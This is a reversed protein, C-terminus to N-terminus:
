LPRKLEDMLSGDAFLIEEHEFTSDSRYYTKSIKNDDHVFFSYVAFENTHKFNIGYRTDPRSDGLFQISYSDNDQSSFISDHSAYYSEMVQDIRVILKTNQIREIYNKLHDDADEFDLKIRWGANEWSKNSLLSLAVFTAIDRYLAELEDDSLLSSSYLVYEKSGIGDFDGYFPYKESLDSLNKNIEEIRWSKLSEFKSGLDKFIRLYRQPDRWILINALERRLTFLYNARDEAQKESLEELTRTMTAATLKFGSFFGVILAFLAVLFLEM